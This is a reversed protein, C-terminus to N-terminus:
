PTATEEDLDSSSGNCYAGAYQGTGSNESLVQGDLTIKCTITAEVDSGTATLTFFNFDFVGGREVQLTETWNATQNDLTSLGAGGDEGTSYTINAAGGTITVEYVLDVLEAAAEEEAQIGEDVAVVGAGAVAFVSAVSVIIGVIIAVVSISLGLAAFLRKRNKLVLGVIGLILGALAPLWAIFSLFPVIACLLAVIGLIFASLGVGNNRKPETAYTPAQPTTQTM